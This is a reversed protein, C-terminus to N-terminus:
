RRSLRSADAREAGFTRLQNAQHDTNIPNLIMGKLRAKKLAKSLQASVIILPHHENYSGFLIDTHYLHYNPNLNQRLFAPTAGAVVAHLGCEHCLNELKTKRRETDFQIEHLPVLHFYNSEKSLPNFATEEAGNSTMIDKLRSSVICAGDYTYSIDYKRIKLEFDPRTYKWDKKWGCKSCFIGDPVEYLRKECSAVM